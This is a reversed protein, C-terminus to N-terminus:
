YWGYKHCAEVMAFINENPTDDHVSHDSCLIYGGNGAAVAICEKVEAEVDAVSGKVLTHKNDVNGVLAIRSGYTRKMEALDMGASREIPNLATIGTGVLDDTLPRINGDSHFIVPTGLKRFAAIMRTVQPIIFERFLAPSLLPASTSGYDDAIWIIDAGAEIMRVGGEIYFDVCKTMIDTVLEPEDYFSVSLGEMGMLLMAASYPGRVSGAVAMEKERALRVTTKIGDLRSPIGPDPMTYNNWDNTSKIPFDVPADIPWTSSHKQYTTQWEDQYIDASGAKVMFGGQGGFPCFCLDYGVKMYLKVVDEPDYIEPVYGLVEEFFPRSYIFEFVPVRDPIKRSLTTLVREKSTM